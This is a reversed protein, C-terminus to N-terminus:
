GLLEEAGFVKDFGDSFGDFRQGLGKELWSLV